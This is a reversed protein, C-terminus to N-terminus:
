FRNLTGALFAALLSFGVCPLVGVAAACAAPLFGRPWLFLARGEL